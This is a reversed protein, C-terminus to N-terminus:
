KRKRKKIKPRLARNKPNTKLHHSKLISKLRMTPSPISQYIIKLKNFEHHISEGGQEGYFGFGAGLKQLFPIAHDEMMHLKPPVSGQPWKAHYFQMLDDVYTELQTLEIITMTSKSSFISYCNSLKNFLQKYKSSIEVSKEHVTTGSLGNNYVLLPVSNCLELISKKKLMKHVHNGIFSKGHYAQRQVKLKQLILEIQQICPGESKKFILENELGNCERVKEM